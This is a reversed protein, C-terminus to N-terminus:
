ISVLGLKKKLTQTAFEMTEIAYAKEVLKNFEQQFTKVQTRTIENVAKTFVNARYEDSGQYKMQEHISKILENRFTTTEGSVRSGYRDVQVYPADMINTLLNPTIDELAKDIAARIAESIQIDIKKAIGSNIEKTMKDIVQRRISDSLTEAEFESGMIDNLDIEIKM